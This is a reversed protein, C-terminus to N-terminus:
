ADIILDPFEARSLKSSDCQGYTTLYVPRPNRAQSQDISTTMAKLLIIILPFKLLRILTLIIVTVM